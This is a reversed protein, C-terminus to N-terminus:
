VPEIEESERNNLWAEFLDNAIVLVVAGFFLGLLGFSIFGGISGIFVILMPADVGRGMLIPTLVNDLAFVPIIWGLFLVFTLLEYSAFVYILIPIIVIATSIQVVGLMLCFLAWIAAGPIAIFAFGIGYLIAQVVAVGIVGTTVGRVTGETLSMLREHSGPLIRDLLQSTMRVARMHHALIVGAIIIAVILQLVLFSVAAISGLAVIGASRIQPQFRVLLGSIGTHAEEWLLFLRDGVLPWQRVEESAEPIAIAGDNFDAAISRASDAFGPLSAAIPGVISFMLLLVIATAALGNRGGAKGSLWRFAPYASVAIIVACFLIRIFPAIVTVSAVVIAGLLGLRIINDITKGNLQMGRM